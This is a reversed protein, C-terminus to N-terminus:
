HRKTRIAWAALAATVSVGTLVAAAIAVYLGVHDEHITRKFTMMEWGREKAVKALAADPNVAVPHGVLELLPVDTISDSYAWSENLDWGQEAALEACARAKNEAYNFHPITGTFHGEDDCEAVSGIAHQAGLATAIPRVMEGVSASALVVPTGDLQHRKIEDLAGVFCQPILAEDVCAVVLEELARADWGKALSGMSQAMQQMRSDDAGRLLYPIHLLVAAALARRSLMGAQRLSRRLAMAAATALITKDLDFFAAGRPPHGAPRHPESM